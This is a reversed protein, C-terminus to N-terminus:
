DLKPTLMKICAHLTNLVTLLKSENHIAVFHQISHLTYDLGNTWSKLVLKTFVLLIVNGLPVTLTTLPPLSFESCADFFNPHLFTLFSLFLKNPTLFLSKRENKVKRQRFENRVWKTKEGGGSVVGPDRLIAIKSM